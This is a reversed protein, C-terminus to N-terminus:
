SLRSRVSEAREGLESLVNGLASRWLPQGIGYDREIRACDLVSYLPRRAATRYDATTIPVVEVRRGSLDFIERAFDFWTTPEAGTFHFTGWARNGQMIQGAIAAIAKAIDHAATPAGKQDRVIRLETRENALRLMTRVFNAGHAAFVWSTRLIIHHPLVDRIASEGDSKTRGYVSLPAVPDDEPYPATKLGDFVYDTSLHILASGSERCAAAMAAPADCNVKAAAGPDTEARDVATYAAANIVMDPRVAYVAEGVARTDLLDAEGRGLQEVECREPWVVRGLERAVQGTKGFILIRM